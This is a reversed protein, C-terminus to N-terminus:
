AKRYSKICDSCYYKMYLLMSVRKILPGLENVFTIISISYGQVEESTASISENLLHFCHVLTRHYISQHNIDFPYCIVSGPDNLNVSIEYRKRTENTEHQTYRENM